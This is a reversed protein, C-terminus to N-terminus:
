NQMFVAQMSTNAYSLPYWFYNLASCMSNGACTGLFVNITKKDIKKIAYFGGAREKHDVFFINVHSLRFLILYFGVRRTVLAFMYSM